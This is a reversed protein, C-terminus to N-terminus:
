YTSADWRISMNGLLLLRSLSDPGLAWGRSKCVPFDLEKVKEGFIERAIAPAAAEAAQESLYTGRVEMEKLQTKFPDIAYPQQHVLEFYVLEWTPCDLEAEVQANREKQLWIKLRTGDTPSTVHFTEFSNLGTDRLFDALIHLGREPDFDHVEDKVVNSIFEARETYPGRCSILDVCGRARSPIAGTSTISTLVYYITDDPDPTTLPRTKPPQDLANSVAWLGYRYVSRADM